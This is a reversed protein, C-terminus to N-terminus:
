ICVFFLIPLPFPFLDCIDDDPYGAAILIEAAGDGSIGFVDNLIENVAGADFGLDKLISPRLRRM